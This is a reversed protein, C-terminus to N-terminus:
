RYKYFQVAILMVARRWAPVGDAALAAHFIAGATIRDWGHTLLWDHLAAAKLYRRDRPNFLWRFIRPVSVDFVFGEDVTVVPGDANGVHWVLPATLRFRIGGAPAFAVPSATYASM